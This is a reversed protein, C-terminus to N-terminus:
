VEWCSRNPTHNTSTLTSHPRTRKFEARLCKLHKCTRQDPQSSTESQLTWCNWSRHYALIILSVVHLSPCACHATVSSGVVSVLYEGNLIVPLDCPGSGHTSTSAATLITTWSYFKEGNQPNANLITIEFSRRLFPNLNTWDVLFDFIWKLRHRVRLIWLIDCSLMLCTQVQKHQSYRICNHM